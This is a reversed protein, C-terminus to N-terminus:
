RPPAAEGSLELDHDRCIGIIQARMEGQPISALHRRARAADGVHCAAIAALNRADPDGQAWPIAQEAGALARRADGRHFAALAAGHLEHYRAAVAARDMGPPPGVAARRPASGPPARADIDAAVDAVMADVVTADSPVEVPAVAAVGADPAPAAALARDDVAPARTPAAARRGGRGVVVAVLALAAVGVGVGVLRRRRPPAPGRLADRVAALSAFREDPDAALGRACIAHLWAPVPRVPAPAGRAIAFMMAALTEGPYARQGHLAEYLAACFGFQDSRPGAPEGALCEPAMFVPTGIVGGTATSITAPAGAAPPVTSVHAVGFDAIRARGDDGVLINSPKVDRHVIGAAHAAVLGAAVDRFVAVVEPWARARELWRSLPQGAVLEMALYARGDRVGADHVAVVNPHALRAMARAETALREQHAAGLLDDHLLKLAVNRDLVRDRAVWVVGMGGEGLKELLAYRDADGGAPQARDRAAAAPVTPDLDPGQSGM